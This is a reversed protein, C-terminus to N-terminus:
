SVPKCPTWSVPAATGITVRIEEDSRQDASFKVGADPEGAPIVFDVHHRDVNAQVAKGNLSVDNYNRVSLSRGGDPPCWEGVIQDASAPAVALATVLSALALLNRVM